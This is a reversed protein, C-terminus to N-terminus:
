ASPTRMWLAAGASPTGPDCWQQIPAGPLLHADDWKPIKRLSGEDHRVSMCTANDTVPCGMRVTDQSRVLATHSRWVSPVVLSETEIEAPAHPSQSLVSNCSVQSFADHLCHLLRDVPACGKWSGPCKMCASVLKTHVWEQSGRICIEAAPHAPRCTLLWELQQPSDHLRM